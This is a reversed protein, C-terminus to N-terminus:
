LARPQVSIMMPNAMPLTLSSRYMPTPYRSKIGEIAESKPVNELWGPAFELEFDKFVEVTVKIAQFIALNMGLCVRPGGNFAHFKFPGYQKIRGKEDIWRDPIFEACDPGWLSADRGMTWDSWRVIDGAEITPGGPIQDDAVALKVDKPVSPHLRLAEFIVANTWTFRKYNEYTVREERSEEDGFIETAEERIKQIARKNMLLHFFAWSLAEATTDRGAIMLNIITDKLETRGLGGGREDRANIFLGLLDTNIPEQQKYDSRQDMQSAMREDILSYAYEDLVRCSDKFRKGISGILREVLQWGVMLMFRFDLHDQAYDFAVAFTNPKQSLKLTSKKQEQDDAHQVSLLGLDKGFTMQVFSNLTFRFFLDCFDISRKEEATSSLVQILGEMSKNSAPLIISKFTKITFITSTAHRARKWLAGDSVFIGNGFVDFMIDRMMSGKVYNEFNTKQIYELWEPKSVDVLRTGPLTMSFGPGHKLTKITSDELVRARNKIMSPLQGLLPWGPVQYFATKKRKSTGIARDHFKIGLCVLCFALVSAVIAAIM